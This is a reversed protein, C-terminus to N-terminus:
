GAASSAKSSQVSENVQSNMRAKGVGRRQHLGAFPPPLFEQVGVLQPSGLRGFLPQFEEGFGILEFSGIRNHPGLALQSDAQCLQQAGQAVLELEIALLDLCQEPLMGVM